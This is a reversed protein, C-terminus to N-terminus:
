WQDWAASFNPFGMRPIQLSPILELEKLAYSRIESSWRVKRPSQWWIHKGFNLKLSLLSRTFLDSEGSPAVNLNSWLKPFLSHKDDSVQPVRRGERCSKPVNKITHSAFIHHIYANLNLGFHHKAFYELANLHREAIHCVNGHFELLM